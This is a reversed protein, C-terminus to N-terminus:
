ALKVLASEIMELAQMLISRPCGFNLRVFGEGGRGYQTGDNLAVKAERTLYEGPAGPIGTGRCDLWALYTAEPGVMHVGPLHEQVHRVLVDRNGELYRLLADLWSQGDHYAALAAAYGMIGPERVLDRRAALFRKRLQGNQIVAFGCHLGALNFTKTPAMFTITRDAIEAGLSAIPVHEHGSFVLDCHIEDSCIIINHRLCVDAMQLLEQRRFVRGTPNHPNCLVFLRTRDSIAAEFADVDVSYCGNAERTFEMQHLERGTHAPLHLIRQYVPTQLLLGDGPSTLALCTLNLGPVVGSVFVVDELSVHWASLRRLREVILERLGSPELGYGYTGRDVLQSLALRVPEPSCFDMDAVWMPLVDEGYRGWKKSHFGRRDIVQDFEHAMSAEERLKSLTRYELQLGSQTLGCLFWRCPPCDGEFTSEAGM